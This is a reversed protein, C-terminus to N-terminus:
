LTTRAALMPRYSARYALLLHIELALFVGTVIRGGPELFVHFALANVLFPALLVLALPVFRNTLLMLGPILQTLGLLPMMYGTNVLATSFAVAGEPLPTTPQPIFNLFGNLGFITFPLGLLIRVIAPARRPRPRPTTTAHAASASDTM